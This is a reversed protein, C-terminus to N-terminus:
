SRAGEKEIRGRGFYRPQRSWEKLLKEENRSLFKEAEADGSLVEFSEPYPAEDVIRFSFERGDELHCLVEDGAWSTEFPEFDALYSALNKM